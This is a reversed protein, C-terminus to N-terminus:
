TVATTAGEVLSSHLEAAAKSSGTPISVVWAWAPGSVPSRHHGTGQQGGGSSAGGITKTVTSTGVPATFNSAAPATFSVSTYGLELVPGSVAKAYVAVDLPLGNDADVSITIRDLTSQTAGASGAKPALTLLYAPQGAVDTGPAVSVDTSPGLASLLRAAEQD